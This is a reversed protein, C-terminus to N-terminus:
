RYVAGRGGAKVVRESELGGGGEGTMSEALYDARMPAAAAQPQMDAVSEALVRQGYSLDPNGHVQAAALDVRGGVNCHGSVAVDRRLKGRASSKLGIRRRQPKGVVCLQSDAHEDRCGAARGGVM